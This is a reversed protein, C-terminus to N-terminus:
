ELGPARPQPPPRLDLAEPVPALAQAANALVGALREHSRMSLADLTPYGGGSSRLSAVERSLRRMAQTARLETSRDRIRLLPTLTGLVVTAGQERGAIVDVAEHSYRVNHGTLDLSLSNELVEHARLLYEAPDIELRPLRERLTAINMALRQAWHRGEALSAHHWLALEVRQLGSFHPDRDGGPRGDSSGNIQTDAEGFAGYAAGIAAYARVARTWAARAGTVDDADLRERLTAVAGATEGLQRAVWRRYAAIPAKLESARVPVEDPAQASLPQAPPNHAATTSAAGGCASLALAAGALAAGVLTALASSSSLLSPASRLM